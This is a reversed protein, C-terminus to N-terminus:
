WKDKRFLVFILIIMGVLVVGALVNSAPSNQNTEIVTNMDQAINM